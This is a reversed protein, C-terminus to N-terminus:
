RNRQELFMQFNKAFDVDISDLDRQLDETDLGNRVAFSALVRGSSGAHVLRVTGEPDRSYLQYYGTTDLVLSYELNWPLHHTCIPLAGLYHGPLKHM